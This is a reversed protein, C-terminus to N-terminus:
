SAGRDSAAKPSARGSLNSSGVGLNKYDTHEFFSRRSRRCEAVDVGIESWNFLVRTSQGHRLVREGPSRPSALVVGTCRAGPARPCRAAPPWCTWRMRRAAPARRGRRAARAGLRGQVCWRAARRLPPLFSSSGCRFGQAEYSPKHLMVAAISPLGSRDLVDRFGRTQGM